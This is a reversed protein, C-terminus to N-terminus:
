RRGDDHPVPQTSTAGTHLDRTEARSNELFRPSCLRCETSESSFSAAALREKSTFHPFPWCTWSSRWTTGLDHDGFWCCCILQPSMLFAFGRGRGHDVVPGSVPTPGLLKHKSGGEPHLWPGSECLVWDM